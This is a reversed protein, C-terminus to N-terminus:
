TDHEATRPELKSDVYAVRRAQRAVATAILEERTRYLDDRPLKQIDLLRDM